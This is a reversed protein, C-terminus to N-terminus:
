SPDGSEQGTGGSADAADLARFVEEDAAGKEVADRLPGRVIARSLRGLTDLHARPSPPVFFFLRRVPVLDAPAEAVPLADRLLVLAVVGGGPGLTVRTSFHPLAFGLGVPAWNVGGDSKLRQALLARVPGPVGALSGIVRELVGIVGGAPVDRWIGGARLMPGLAFGTKFAANEPALFGARAALGHETAWQVVRARDFLLRGRDPVHPLGEDRIWDEVVREAVGFSEAIEVLNLYM